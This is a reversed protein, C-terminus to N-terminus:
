EAEFHKLLDVLTEVTKASSDEVNIFKTEILYPSWFQANHAMQANKLTKQGNKMLKIQDSQDLHGSTAM